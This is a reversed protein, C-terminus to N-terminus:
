IGLLGFLHDLPADQNVEYFALLCDREPASTPLALYEKFRAPTDQAIHRKLSESRSQPKLFRGKWGPLAVGPTGQNRANNRHAKSLVVSFLNL